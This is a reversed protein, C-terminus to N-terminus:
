VSAIFLCALAAVIIYPYSSPTKEKVVHFRMYETDYDLEYGDLTSLEMKQTERDIRIICGPTIVQVDQLIEDSM